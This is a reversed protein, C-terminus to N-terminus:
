ELKPDSYEGQRILLKSPVLAQRGADVVATRGVAGTTAAIHSTM